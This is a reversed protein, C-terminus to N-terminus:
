ELPPDMGVMLAEFEDDIDDDDDPLTDQGEEGEM